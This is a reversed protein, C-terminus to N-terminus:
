PRFRSIVRKQIMAALGSVMGLRISGGTVTKKKKLAERLSLSDDFETYGKGIDALIHADSGGTQALNLARATKKAFYNNGPLMRSNFTEVADIHKRVDSVKRKFNLWPVSRYPHAISVIAGQEKIQDIVDYFHGPKVTNSLYYAIVEGFDTMIEEAKIVEFNSSKNLKKVADAGRTSNHDTIAIGSYGLKLYQKLIIEPKLRSCSSYATHVHLDYRKM